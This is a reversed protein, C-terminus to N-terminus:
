FIRLLLTSYVKADEKCQCDLTAGSGGFWRCGFEPNTTVDEFEADQTRMGNILILLTMLRTWGAVEIQSAM